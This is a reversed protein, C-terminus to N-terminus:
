LPYGKERESAFPKRRRHEMEGNHKICKNLVIHTIPLGLLCKLLCTFAEDSSVHLLLHM